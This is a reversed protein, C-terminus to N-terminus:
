VECWVEFGKLAAVGLMQEPVVQNSSDIFRGVVDNALRAVEYRLVRRENGRRFRQHSLQGQKRERRYADVVSPVRIARGCAVADHVLDLAWEPGNGSGSCSKTSQVGM